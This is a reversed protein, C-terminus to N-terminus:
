VMGHGNNDLDPEFVALQRGGAPDAGLAAEDPLINEGASEARREDASLTVGEREALQQMTQEDIALPADSRAGSASLSIVNGEAIDEETPPPLQSNHIGIRLTAGGVVDGGTNFVSYDFEEITPARYLYIGGDNDSEYIYTYSGDLSYYLTGLSGAVELGSFSDGTANAFAVNLDNPNYAGLEDAVGDTDNSDNDIRLVRSSGTAKDVAQIAGPNGGSLVNGNAVGEVAIGAATDFDDNARVITANVLTQIEALSDAEDADAEAVAANVAVLNTATVGDVGADLYTQVAPANTNDDAYGAILGVATLRFAEVGTDVLAQIEVLSDAEDLAEAAAVAANVHDLNAVTVGNAGADLYTQVTPNLPNGVGAVYYSIIQVAAQVIGTNVLTQIEAWTDAADREVGAIVANVQYLNALRVGEVRADLYTQVAPAANTNDDAYGAIQALADADAIQLSFRQAESYLNGDFVRFSFGIDLGATNANPTFELRELDEALVAYGEKLTFGGRGEADPRVRLTGDATPLNSFAVSHLLSNEADAYGFSSASFGGYAEGAVAVATQPEGEPPTNAYRIDLNPVDNLDLGRLVVETGNVSLTLHGESNEAAELDTGAAVGLYLLDEGVNFDTLTSRGQTAGITFLDSGARGTLTDNGRGGSLIDDGDGGDLVDNGGGGILTDNGAGGILTDNGSNSGAIYDNGDLGEIRVPLTRQPDDRNTAESRDDGDTLQVRRFEAVREDPTLLGMANDANWVQEPLTVDARGSYTFEIAELGGINAGLELVQEGVTLKWSGDERELSTQDPRIDTLVLRDYGAAGEISDNGDGSSYFFRDDGAGGDLEDDGAGGDLEDDGAGGDFEDDGAGGDLEDDGAGGFLTDNGAGGFLTDNGAGGDLEDDGAGGFLTDNGALGAISESAVTGLLVNDDEDGSIGGDSGSGNILVSLAGIDSVGTLTIANASTISGDDEVSSTNPLVIRLDQRIIEGIPNEPTPKDRTDVVSVSNRFDALDDFVGAAFSLRDVAPNFDSIRNSGALTDAQSFHFSDAGAGGSLIDNGAGGQLIDNGAGGQLIDNGAGGQLIDNGAGGSLTDNGAGGFLRDNGAGGFLRDNGELGFLREDGTSGAIIDNGTSGTLRRGQAGATLNMNTTTEVGDSDFTNVTEASLQDISDVGNLWLTGAEYEIDPSRVFLGNGNDDTVRRQVSTGEITELLPRLAGPVTVAPLAIQVHGDVVSAAERVAQLGNFLGHAFVLLDDGTGFDTIRSNEGPNINFQDDGAGGTLQNTGLGGNLRDDGAGGDLVDNGGRGQLWDDGAGGRILAADSSNAAVTYGLIDAGETGDIKNAESVTATPASRETEMFNRGDTYSVKVRVERDVDDEGLTYNQGTASAIDEFDGNAGTNRQWQYSYAAADDPLGDLDALTGITAMLTAGETAVGIISPAGVPVSNFETTDVGDASLTTVTDTTLDNTTANDVILVTQDPLRIQLNDGQNTAAARVAQLNFFLGREFLLKDGASADFDTITDSGDSGVFRFEDAGAGGNLIDGGAGGSLTDNGNGGRLTDAGRWGELRDDGAGGQLTNAEHNGTLADDQASGILHEIGTLTDGEADGGAATSSRLSITVGEGSSAYSATDSGAGGLLTDGDAGGELVDDGAGGQLTNAEANGLLRDDHASGILHEIGTLTDGEADGGAATSSRLSITVGEGSSAYSATDSGAGGLLTDGDAGGELVDDGAGGQLTNAEHNGTLADDQASGILHEIGTLTDGEADGGAATSSRLSITVGEGSSAYSATDSGAGGLLTDGDAGGELVDDGAGGNLTDGGAGGSLTDNGDGGRLTDNGAGGILTDDGAGGNLIDGGAGGSLTDNGDGGRLTDAGRWGELRDDGAGGQLTNAEHNGTLADDQASGILHEIGTLTDGEADGGAATSSRLSITVGEGSSAYSATDSGAGGLLTDGDAGGELVDDGEDGVVFDEGASGSLRDNGDGGQMSDNGAGGILTDDGAGGNLIDGGAGGSLTDNGDGGRLTDGDAGGELVDDGAGGQLTNAEHNGTLADDQASGILHEIDVLADGAAHGGAATGSRLSITAGEGSSAYSATDSGAGGLLTDGDAGGELVDDGAGGNLTDGGAGGSLTDNGDGGRLTNAEHNGTLADDQASGTLNEIGVLADGEADGGTATGSRLSITVGEGSSAYSATDSGAGGLLTDGDAGGELVDDGAGGNLTDGGAGGSLTDNGDGGRLTDNGGLGNLRDDGAGGELINDGATGNILGPINTIDTGSDSGDTVEPGEDGMLAVLAADVLEDLDISGVDTQPNAIAAVLDTQIVRKVADIRQQVAGADDADGVTDAADELRGNAGVVQEALAQASGVEAAELAAQIAAQDALVATADAQADTSGQRADLLREALRAAAAVSAAAPDDSARAAATALVTAVQASVAYVAAQDANTELAALPDLELLNSGSLGLASALQENAEAVSIPNDGSAQTEVLSQVLTTLPSIVDSGAPATLVSTLAQGTSTDTGGVAVLRASDNTQELAFRGETDTMTTPEGADLEGDADLDQFVQAGAIYGDVVVGELATTDTDPTETETETDTDTGTEPTETDTSDTESTDTESTDTESTDTESTDTESTDTESTDTESTDTETSDTGTTETEAGDTETSVAPDDGGSRNAVVGLAGLVGASVVVATANWAAGSGVAEPATAPAQATQLESLEAETANFMEALESRSRPQQGIINGEEGLRLETYDGTAPDRLMLAPAPRAFFDALAIRNGDALILILDDGQQFTRAINNVSLPILAGKAGEVLTMVPNYTGHVIPHPFPM